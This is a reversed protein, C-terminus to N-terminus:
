SAGDSGASASPVLAWGDGLKEVIVTVKNRARSPQVFSDNIADEADYDDSKVAAILADRRPDDGAVYEGSTDRVMLDNPGAMASFVSVAASLADEKSFFHSSHDGVRWRFDPTSLRRAGESDLVFNIELEAEAQRITVMYHTAWAVVGAFSTLRLRWMSGSQM